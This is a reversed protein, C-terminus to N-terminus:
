GKLYTNNIAAQKNEMIALSANLIRAEAAILLCLEGADKYKGSLCLDHTQRMLNEIKMMPMAYDVLEEKNMKCFLLLHNLWSLQLRNLLCCDECGM